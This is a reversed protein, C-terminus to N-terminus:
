LQSDWPCKNKVLSKWRLWVGKWSVLSSPPAWRLPTLGYWFPPRQTIDSQLHVFYNRFQVALSVKPEPCETPGCHDTPTQYTQHQVDRSLLRGWGEVIQGPEARFLNRLSQLTVPRGHGGSFDQSRPIATGMMTIQATSNDNPKGGFYRMFDIFMGFRYANCTIDLPMGRIQQPLTAGLLVMVVQWRHATEGQTYKNWCFFVFASDKYKKWGHEGVPRAIRSKFPCIWVFWLFRIITSYEHINM